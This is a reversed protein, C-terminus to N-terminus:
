IKLETITMQYRDILNNLTALTTSLTARKQRSQELNDYFLGPNNKCDTDIVTKLRDNSENYQSRFDNLRDEFSKTIDALEPETINNNAVRANMAYILKLIQDYSHGRNIRTSTDSHGIRQLTSQAITCRSALFDKKADDLEVASVLGASSLSLVLALIVFIINNKVDKNYV